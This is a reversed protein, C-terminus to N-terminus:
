AVPDNSGGKVFRDLRKLMNSNSKISQASEYRCTIALNLLELGGLTSADLWGAVALLRERSL